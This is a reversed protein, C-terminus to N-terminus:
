LSATQCDKSACYVVIARDKHGALAEMRSLFTEDAHPVNHSGPIHAQEFADEGLVNVVLLDDHQEMRQKLAQATLNQM